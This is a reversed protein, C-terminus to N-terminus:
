RAIRTLRIWLRQERDGVPETLGGLEDGEHELVFRRTGVRIEARIGGYTGADIPACGLEGCAEGEVHRDHTRLVLRIPIRVSEWGADTYRHRLAEGSWTGDWSPEPRTAHRACWDHEDRAECWARVYAREGLDTLVWAAFKEIEGTGDDLAEVLFPIAPLGVDLIESRATMDPTGCWGGINARVTEIADRVRREDDSPGGGDPSEVPEAVRRSPGRGHGRVDANSACAAPLLALLVALGLSRV